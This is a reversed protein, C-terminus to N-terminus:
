SVWAGGESIKMWNPLYYNSDPIKGGYDYEAVLKIMDNADDFQCQSFQYVMHNKGHTVGSGPYARWKKDSSLFSLTDWTRGNVTFEDHFVMRWTSDYLDIQAMMNLSLMIMGCLYAFKKM